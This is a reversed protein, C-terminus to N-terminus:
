YLWSSLSCCLTSLVTQVFITAVMKISSLLCFVAPSYHPHEKVFLKQLSNLIGLTAETLVLNLMESNPPLMSEGQREGGRM